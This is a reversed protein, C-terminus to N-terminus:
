LDIELKKHLEFLVGVEEMMESVSCDDSDSLNRENMEDANINLKSKPVSFQILAESPLLNNLVRECM